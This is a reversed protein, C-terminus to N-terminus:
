PDTTSGLNLSLFTVYIVYINVCVYINYAGVSVCSYICVCGFEGV